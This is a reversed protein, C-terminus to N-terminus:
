RGPNELYHLLEQRVNPDAFSRTHGAPATTWFGKPEAAAKFLSEGHHWPVVPDNTGHIILVPVPSVRKIWKLPSYRNSYSYAIPYQFPWSLLCLAAKERAIARYDSFVSELILVRIRSKRPSDAVTRIAIAGGLSQGFVILGEEEVGSLTFAKEIAAEADLHVGMMSPAGESKGYGRYDFVVARYGAEVLWIVFGSHTSINQANGHFHLITGKYPEGSKPTLIWGHLKTGDTSPFVIEEINVKEINKNPYHKKEPQFIFAGCGSLLLLLFIATLIKYASKM